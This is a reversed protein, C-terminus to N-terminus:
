KEEELKKKLDPLVKLSGDHFLLTLPRENKVEAKSSVLEQHIDKVACFGRKLTNHYSFSELLASLQKLHSQYDHLLRMGSLLLRESLANQQHKALAIAEHPHRLRLSLSQVTYSLREFFISILQEFRMVREDFRQAYEEWVRQLARCSREELIRLCQYLDAKVPLAREAAATPTPARWDAVEDLLTTDTEHGIASILPIQSDAAARIVVEENFAWLDELSGGGRAIILLDPRPIMGKLSYENFGQIARAIQEASGEGQVLVPWLLIPTPFRERVRHLIDQIVAGTPSTVVGILRPLFPLPKKREQAFIGESALRKKREQLIKLLAGEGAIELAEIKLQYCSRGPYTTISGTAIVEMGDQPNFKLRSGVNWCVSDIKLQPTDPNLDKLACYLHGSHIKAGSIEGRVRIRDFTQELKNKINYSIESVSYEKLPLTNFLEM